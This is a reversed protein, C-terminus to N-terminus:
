KKQRKSRFVTRITPAQAQAQTEAITLARKRSRTQLPPPLPAKPARPARSTPAPAPAPQAAKRGAKQAANVTGRSNLLQIAKSLTISKNGETVQINSGISDAMTGPVPNLESHQFLRQLWGFQCTLVYANHHKKQLIRVPLRSSEGILRLKKPIKLTAIAGNEFVTQGVLSRQVMQTAIKKNHTAVRAEIDTLEIVQRAQEQLLQDQAAQSSSNVRSNSDPEPEAGSDSDREPEAGIDSDLSPESSPGAGLDFGAGSNFDARATFDAESDPEVGLLEPELNQAGLNLRWHPKRSFFVEFPCIKRELVRPRTTNIAIALEPLLRVWESTGIELQLAQLRKKFTKNAVEVSGQSQPHYPSGNIVNIGHKKTLELLKGKFETGNDCSRNYIM